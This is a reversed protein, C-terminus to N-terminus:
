VADYTCQGDLLKDNTPDTQEAPHQLKPLAYEVADEFRKSSIGEKYLINRSAQFFLCHMLFTFEFFLLFHFFFVAVIQFGYVLGVFDFIFEPWDLWTPGVRIERRQNQGTKIRGIKAM